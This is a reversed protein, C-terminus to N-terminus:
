GLDDAVGHSATRARRTGAINCPVCGPGQSAERLWAGHLRVRRDSATPDSGLPRDSIQQDSRHSSRAVNVRIFGRADLAIGAKELGINATNAIRGVALLLHSGEITREGNETQDTVAVTDGSLGHVSLPKVNLLIDIGEGSLVESIEQAVDGDERGMLQRGPEIITVRSGFRRYAQAMEVGTYGGGLVILHPPLDDLELAEIHTLAHAEQLGPIDPISAHSGVNVVIENGALLRTGGENLAVQLTKPGVFRGRGMILEVGSEKYANLHFAIERDIMDQKRPAADAIRDKIVLTRQRPDRRRNMPKNDGLPFAALAHPDPDVIQRAQETQDLHSATSSWGQFAVTSSM